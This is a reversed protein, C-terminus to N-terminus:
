SRKNGTMAIISAGIQRLAPIIFNLEETTGSKSLCIVVDDHDVIGLDGHAADAPHLFLATSGTSAMTAAIKQAIIGSKGMGSIIIKGKCSALLEVADSFSEDLRDAMQQIALSEQELISKGTTTIRTLSTAKM